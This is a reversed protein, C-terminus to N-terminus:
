DNTSASLELSKEYRRNRIFLVTDIMVLMIDFVYFYLVYNVDNVVFKNIIGCAYGIIVVVMFLFSKGKTSRSVISKYISFPWAFAFCLLMLIEFLGYIM